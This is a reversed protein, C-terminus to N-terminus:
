ILDEKSKLFFLANHMHIKKLLKLDVNFLPQLEDGSAAILKVYGISATWGALTVLMPDVGTKISGDTRGRNIEKVIYKFPINQIQQLKEFYISESIGDTIKDKNSGHATSRILAFYSLLAESYLYNQECFEVFVNFMDVSSLLGSKHVNKTLTEEYRDILLSLAKFTMALQLNEKSQFYSYLTVKTISAEKAIDEMKANTFGVQEFVKEAASIINQEKQNKKSAKM